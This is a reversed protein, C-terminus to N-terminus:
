RRRMTLFSDSSSLSSGSSSRALSGMLGLTFGDLQDCSVLLRNSQMHIREQWPEGATGLFVSPIRLGGEKYRPTTILAAGITQGDQLGFAFYHPVDGFHRLWTEM